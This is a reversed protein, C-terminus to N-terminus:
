GGGAGPADTHRPRRSGVAEAEAVAAEAPRRRHAVPEAADAAEAAEAAQHHRRGTPEALLGMSLEALLEALFDALLGASLEVLLEEEEM